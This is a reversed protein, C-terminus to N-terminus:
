RLLEAVMATKTNKSSAGDDFCRVLMASATYNSSAADSCRFRASGKSIAGIARGNKSPTAHDANGTGTLAM